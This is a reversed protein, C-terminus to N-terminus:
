DKMKSEEEKINDSKSHARSIRKTKGFGNEQDKRKRNCEEDTVMENSTDM